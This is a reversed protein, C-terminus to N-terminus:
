TKRPPIVPKFAPKRFPRKHPSIESSPITDITESKFKEEEAQLASVRLDCPTNLTTDVKDNATLVLSTPVKRLSTTPDLAAYDNEKQYTIPKPYVHPKYPAYDMDPSTITKEHASAHMANVSLGDFTFSPSPTSQFRRKVYLVLVAAIATTLLSSVLILLVVLSTNNNRYPYHTQEDVEINKFNSIKIRDFPKTTVQIDETTYWTSILKNSGYITQGDDTTATCLPPIDITGSGQLDYTKDPGPAKMAESFCTLALKTPVNTHFFTTNDISVFYSGNSITTMPCPTEIKYYDLAEPHRASKVDYIPSTTLCYNHQRCKQVEDYSLTAYRNSDYYFAIYEHQVKPLYTANGTFIPFPHVRYIRMKTQPELIPTSFIVLNYNLPTEYVANAVVHKPNTNVRINHLKSYADAVSKLFAPDIAPYNGTAKAAAFLEIFHTNLKNIDHYLQFFANSLYVNMQIVQERSKTDLSLDFLSINSVGNHGTLYHHISKQETTTYATLRDQLFAINAQLEKVDEATVTNQGDKLVYQNDTLRKITRIANIIQIIGMVARFGKIAAGLPSRTHRHDMHPNYIPTELQPVKPLTPPDYSKPVANRTANLLNEMYELQQACTTHLFADMKSQVRATPYQCLYNYTRHQRIEPYMESEREAHINAKNSDLVYFFHHSAPNEGKLLDHWNFRVPRYFPTLNAALKGDYTVPEFTIPDIRIGSLVRTVSATAMLEKVKQMQYATHVSPIDGHHKRCARAHNATIGKEKTIGLGTQDNYALVEHRVKPKYVTKHTVATHDCMSSYDNYLKELQKVADHIPDTNVTM